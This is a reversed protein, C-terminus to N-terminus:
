RFKDIMVAVILALVVLQMVRRPWLLRPWTLTLLGGFALVILLLLVGGLPGPLFLGVLVLALAGLFVGTRPLRTVFVLVVQVWKNLSGPGSRGTTDTDRPM